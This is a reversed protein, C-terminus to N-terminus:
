IYIIIKIFHNFNDEKEQEKLNIKEKILNEKLM